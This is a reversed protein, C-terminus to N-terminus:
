DGSSAAVHSRSDPSPERPRCPDVDLLSAIVSPAAERRRLAEIDAPTDLDLEVDPHRLLATRAGQARGRRLHEQCSGRGFAFRLLTPPRCFIANTGDQHRDSVVAVARGDPFQEVIEDLTETELCPLDSPLVLVSQAGHELAFAAAADLAANLPGEPEAGRSTPELLSRAGAAEALTGVRPDSTVVLACGISSCGQIARLTRELLEQQLQARIEADLASALRSKASLLSRVPVIAWM